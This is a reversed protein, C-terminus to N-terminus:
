HQPQAKIPVHEYSREYGASHDPTEFTASTASVARLLGDVVRPDFQSGACDQLEAIADVLPMAKRYSRTTVMANFADCATVIRAELPIEEGRLGDPYGAGDWREHSARVIRGIECM